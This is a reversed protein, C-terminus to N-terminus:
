GGFDTISEEKMDHPLESNLRRGRADIVGLDQLRRVAEKIRLDASQLDREIVKDVLERDSLDVNALTLGDLCSGSGNGKNINAKTAM